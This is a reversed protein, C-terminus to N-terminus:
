SELVGRISEEDIFRFLVGFAARVQEPTVTPPEHTPDWDQFERRWYVPLPSHPADPDGVDFNFAEADGALEDDYLYETFLTSAHDRLQRLYEDQGTEPVQAAVVRLRDRFRCVLTPDRQWTAFLYEYALWTQPTNVAFLLATADLRTVAIGALDHIGARSDLLVWDPHEAAELRDMFHAIRTGIDGIEPTSAYIRALKSVYAEKGIIGGAPVVRIEGTTGAALPSTAVLERLLEDDAQQVDEEVFWDVVGFSPRAYEPLLSASVGPSELDLDVVLVRQGREALHRAVSVLATSRGVGGKIGFFTLRQANSSSRPLPARLWDGGTVWRELLRVGEAVQRLESAGFVADPALMAERILFIQTAGPSFAGLVQDVERALADAQEPREGLAFRIRGRLDRVVIVDGGMETRRKSAFDIAIELARDFRVTM